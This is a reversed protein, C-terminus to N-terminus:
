EKLFDAIHLHLLMIGKCQVKILNAKSDTGEKNSRKSESRPTHLTSTLSYLHWVPRVHQYAKMPLPISINPILSISMLTLATSPTTPTVRSTSVNASPSLTPLHLLLPLCRRPPIKQPPLANQIRNLTTTKLPSPSQLRPDPTLAVYDAALEPRYVSWLMKLMVELFSSVRRLQGM